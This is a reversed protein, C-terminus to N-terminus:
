SVTTAKVCNLFATLLKTAVQKAKLHAESAISFAPMLDKLAILIRVLLSNLEFDSKM